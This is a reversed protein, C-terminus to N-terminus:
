EQFGNGMMYRVMLGITLERVLRREMRTNDKTFTAQLFFKMVEDM